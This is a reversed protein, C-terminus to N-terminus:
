GFDTSRSGVWHRSEPVAVCSLVCLWGKCMLAVRLCGCYLWFLSISQRQFRVRRTRTAADMAMSLRSARVAGVNLEM